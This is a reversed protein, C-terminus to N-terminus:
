PADEPALGQWLLDVVRRGYEAPGPTTEDHMGMIEFLVYNQASGILARAAVQTDVCRIRGEKREAELFGSLAQILRKPIPNDRGEHIQFPHDIIRSSWLMLVRPLLEQFFTVFNTFLQEMALRPEGAPLGGQALKLPAPMEGPGMCALLLAEKTPFRKFITGESCGTRRAVESTPASCGQELFVERAADLISEDTIRRPRAMLSHM